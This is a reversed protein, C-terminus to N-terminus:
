EKFKERVLKAVAKEDLGMNTLTKTYDERSMKNIRDALNEPTAKFGGSGRPRGLFEKVDVRDTAPIKSARYTAQLDIIVTSKALGILEDRSCKTFDLEVKTESKVGGREMRTEITDSYIENVLNM